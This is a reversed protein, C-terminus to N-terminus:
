PKNVYNPSSTKSADRKHCRGRWAGTVWAVGAILVPQLPLRAWAIWPQAPIGHVQIHAAAMYVNAPFVAVLLAMLGWGAAVQARRAPILLGLGGLLEAIGSVVVCALPFPIAPPMIPLFLTPNALHLTGAVLFLAALLLKTVRRLLAIM